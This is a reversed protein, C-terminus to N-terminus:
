HRRRNKSPGTSRRSRGNDARSIAANRRMELGLAEVGASVMTDHDGRLAETCWNQRATTYLARLEADSMGDLVEEVADWVTLSTDSNFRERAAALVGDLTSIRQGM